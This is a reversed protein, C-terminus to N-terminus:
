LVPLVAPLLTSPPCGGPLFPPQARLLHGVALCLRQTCYVVAQCSVCLVAPCWSGWHLAVYGAQSACEWLEVIALHNPNPTCSLQCSLPRLVLCPVPSCPGDPWRHRPKPPLLLSYDQFTQGAPGISLCQRDALISLAQLAIPLLCRQGVVWTWYLKVYSLFRRLLVCGNRTRHPCPMLPTAPLSRVSRPM